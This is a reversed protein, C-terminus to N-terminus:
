ILFWYLYRNWNLLQSAFQGVNLGLTALVEDASGETIGVVENELPKSM